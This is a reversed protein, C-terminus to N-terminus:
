RVVLICGSGATKLYLRGDKFIFKGKQLKEEQASSAAPSFTWGTTNAPGDYAACEAILLTRGLWSGFATAGSLVLTGDTPLYLTGTTRVLPVFGAQMTDNADSVTLTKDALEVPTTVTANPLAGALALTGGGTVTGAFGDGGIALTTGGDIEVTGAGTLASLTQSGGSVSLTAGSAVTVPTAAPLIPGVSGTKMSRVLTQVQDARLAVDFIRIDDLYSTNAKETPTAGYSYHNVFFDQAAVNLTVDTKQNVYVGDRYLTVTKADKDYVATVTTWGTAAAYTQSSTNKRSSATADTWALTQGANNVTTWDCALQRPCSRWGIRFHTNAQTQDGWALFASNEVPLMANVRVSVTFSASGSPMGSPWAQSPPMMSAETCLCGGFAGQQNAVVTPDGTNKPTSAPHVTNKVLDCAGERISDKGVNTTDDFAWHHIPSPVAAPGESYNSFDRLAAIEEATLECNYVAIDDMGGAYRHTSAQSGYNNGLVMGAGSSIALATVATQALESKVGDVYLRLRRNNWSCVVHHWSGDTLASADAWVTNSTDSETYSHVSFMLKKSGKFYWLMYEEGVNWEGRRIVYASDGCNAADPKLWLSITFPANGYPVGSASGTSATFWENQYDDGVKAGRFEAGALHRVGAGRSPGTRGQATAETVRPTLTRGNGSFDRNLDDPDDFLWWSVRRSDVSQKLSLTGESVTITGDIDNAGTLELTYNAGTKTVNAKGSLRAGFVSTEDATGTGTLTLTSNDKLEVGGTAGTGSLLSLTESTAGLKLWGSGDISPHMTSGFPVGTSMKVNSNNLSLTGTSTPTVNLGIEIGGANVVRGAGGIASKFVYSVSDLTNEGGTLTLTYGNLDVPTTAVASRLHAVSFNANLKLTATGSLVLESYTGKFNSNAITVAVSDGVDFTGNYLTFESYPRMNLEGAGRIRFTSTRPNGWDNPHRFAFDLTTGSGIYIQTTAAFEGFKSSGNGLLTIKGQNNGTVIGALKLTTGTHNITAGASLSSLNYVAATTFAIPDQTGEPDSKWNSATMWDGGSAAGVWYNTGVANAQLATFAGLMLIALLIRSM